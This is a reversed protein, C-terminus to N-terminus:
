TEDANFYGSISYPGYYDDDIRGYAHFYEGFADDKNHYSVYRTKGTKLWAESTAMLYGHAAGFCLGMRYGYGLADTTTCKITGDDNKIVKQNSTSTYVRYSDNVTLNFYYPQDAASATIFLSMITMLVLATAIIKKM